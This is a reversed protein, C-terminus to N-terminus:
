NIIQRIFLDINDYEKFYLEAACIVVKTDSFRLFLEIPIRPIIIPRPGMRPGEKPPIISEKLKQCSIKKIFIGKTIRPIAHLLKRRFLSESFFLLRCNSISPIVIFVRM